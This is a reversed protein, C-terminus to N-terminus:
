KVKNDGERETGKKERKLYEVTKLKVEEVEMEEEGGEREREREREREWVSLREEGWM